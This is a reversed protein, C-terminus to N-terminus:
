KSSPMQVSVGLWGSSAGAAFGRDLADNITVQSIANMEKERQQRQQDKNGSSDRGEVSNNASERFQPLLCAFVARQLLDDFVDQQDRDGGLESEQQEKM